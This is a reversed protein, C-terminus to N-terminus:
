KTVSATDGKGFWGSVTKFFGDPMILWNPLQLNGSWKNAAIKLADAQANIMNVNVMATEYPVTKMLMATEEARKQAIFVKNISSQITPDFTLGEAYGVFAITVGQAAFSEKTEKEVVAIIDAKQAAADILSRKGFERALLTQVKHRVNDDVVEALSRGYMVSSFKVAPDDINAPTKTGFWYEFKAADEEKVFASMAIGTTINISESSEVHFGEDKVSTGRNSSSVWERTSPTRDVIVLRAAPIYKDMEAFGTKLTTHPIQVRKMAVKNANLYAESMFSAQGDKNAGVEPILFATQNPLVEVYEPKDQTDYYAHATSPVLFAGLLLVSLTTKTSNKFLKAIPEWWLLLLFVFNVLGIVVPLGSLFSIETQSVVYASKSDALQDVALQGVTATQWPTYVSMCIYSVVLVLLTLAIRFKM